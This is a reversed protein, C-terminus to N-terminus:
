DFTFRVNKVVEHRGWRFNCVRAVEAGDKSEPVCGGVLKVVKEGRSLPLELAPGEPVTHTLEVQDAFDDVLAFITMRDVRLVYTDHQFSAGPYMCMEVKSNEITSSQCQPKPASQAHSCVSVFALAAACLASTKLM